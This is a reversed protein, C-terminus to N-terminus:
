IKIYRVMIVMVLTIESQFKAISLKIFLSNECFPTYAICYTNLKRTHLGIYVVYLKVQIVLISM